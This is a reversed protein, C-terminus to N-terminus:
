IAVVPNDNDNVSGPTEKNDKRNMPSSRCSHTESKNKREGKTRRFLKKPPNYLGQPSSNIPEGSPSSIYKRECSSVLNENQM